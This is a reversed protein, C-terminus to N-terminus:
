NHRKTVRMKVAMETKRKREAEDLEDWEGKTFSLPFCSYWVCVRLRGSCLLM